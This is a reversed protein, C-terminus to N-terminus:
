AGRGPSGIVRVHSSPPTVSRTAAQEPAAAVEPEPSSPPVSPAAFSPWLTSSEPWTSSAFAVSVPESPPPPESVPALSPAACSELAGSVPEAESALQIMWTGASTGCTWSLPAETSFAGTNWDILKEPYSWTVATSAKTAPTPVVVYQYSATASYPTPAAVTIGGTWRAPVAGLVMSSEAIPAKRAVVSAPLTPSM